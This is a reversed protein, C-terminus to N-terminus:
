NRICSPLRKQQERQGADLRVINKDVKKKNDRVTGSKRQQRRGRFAEQEEENWWWSKREERRYDSSVEAGVVRSIQNAVM